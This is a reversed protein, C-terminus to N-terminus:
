EGLGQLHSVQTVVTAALEADDLSDVRQRGPTFESRNLLRREDLGVVQSVGAQDLNLLPYKLESDLLVDLAFEVLEVTENIGRNLSM